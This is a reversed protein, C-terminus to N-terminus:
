ARNVLGFVKKALLIAQKTTGVTWGYKKAIYSNSAWYKGGINETLIVDKIIVQATSDKVTGRIAFLM